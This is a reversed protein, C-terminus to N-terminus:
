TIMCGMFGQQTEETHQVRHQVNQAWFYLIFVVNDKGELYVCSCTLEFAMVTMSIFYDVKVVVVGFDSGGWYRAGRLDEM